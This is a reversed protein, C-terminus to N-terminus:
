TNSLVLYAGSWMRHKTKGKFVQFKLFCNNFPHIFQYITLFGWPLESKHFEQPSHRGLVKYNLYRHSIEVKAYKKKKRNCRHCIFTVPSPTSDSSCSGAEAMGCRCGVCCSTAIRSGQGLSRSLLALSRVWMRMSM